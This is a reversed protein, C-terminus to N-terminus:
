DMTTIKIEKYKSKLKQLQFSKLREHNIRATVVKDGKSHINASAPIELTRGKTRPGLRLGVGAGM